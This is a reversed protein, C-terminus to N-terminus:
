KFCNKFYLSHEGDNLDIKVSNPCTKCELIDGVKFKEWSSTDIM